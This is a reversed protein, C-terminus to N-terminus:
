AILQGNQEEEKMSRNRTNYKKDKSGKRCQRLRKQRDSGEAPCTYHIYLFTYLFLPEGAMARRWLFFSRNGARRYVSCFSPRDPGDNQM